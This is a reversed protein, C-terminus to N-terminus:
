GYLRFPFVKRTLPRLITLRKQSRTIAVYAVRREAEKQSRDGHLENWCPGPLDPLVVVHQAQRGKSWHWTGLLVQPQPIKGYRKLLRAFYERTYSDTRMQLVVAPGQELIAEVLRNFGDSVKRLDALGHAFPPLNASLKKDGRALLADSGQARVFAVMAVVEDPYLEKGQSLRHAASVAKIRKQSGLPNRGHGRAVKYAVGAEFLCGALPALQRRGRALVLATENGLDALMSLEGNYHIEGQRETSAFEKAVRVTNSRILSQSLAHVTVPLRWSKSLVRTPCRKALGLLWSSDAGQFGYIAQDDDGAITVAKSRTALQEVVAAQLPSLDQAEDVYLHELGTALGQVLVQELCDTYDRKGKETKFSEYRLAYEELWRWSVRFPCGSYYKSIKKRCNRHWEYASRLQDDKTSKPAPETAADDDSQDRNDSSLKYGYRKRFEAMDKDSLWQDKDWRLLRACFSHLTRFWVLQSPSLDLKAAARSRAEECASRSYSTFGILEASTTELRDAIDAILTTTKGTGPPGLLITANDM